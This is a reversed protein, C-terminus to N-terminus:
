TELNCCSRPDQSQCPRSDPPCSGMSFNLSVRDWSQYEDGFHFSSEEGWVDRVTLLFTEGPRKYGVWTYPIVFDIKWSNKGFSFPRPDLWPKSQDPNDLAATSTADFGQRLDLDLTWCNRSTGRARLICVNYAKLIAADSDETEAIIRGDVTQSLATTEQLVPEGITDSDCSLHKFMVLPNIHPDIFDKNCAGGNAVANELSCRTGLRIEFHLHPFGARGSEGVTGIMTGGTVFTGADVAMADLHCYFTYYMDVPSKDKHFIVEEAFEHRLVVTLGCGTWNYIGHVLGSQAALVPDGLDGAIDFGRHFDYYKSVFGTTRPGFGSSIECLTSRPLPWFTTSRAERFAEEYSQMGEEFVSGFGTISLAAVKRKGLVEALVVFAALVMWTKKAM